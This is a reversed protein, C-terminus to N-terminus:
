AKKTKTWKTITVNNFKYPKTDATELFDIHNIFRKNMTDTIRYIGDKHGAGKVKVLDGYKFHKFLDRSVAIWHQESAKNPDIKSGNATILPTSDCQSEVAYYMTACVTFVKQEITRVVTKEHEIIKGVTTDTGHLCFFLSIIVLIQKM